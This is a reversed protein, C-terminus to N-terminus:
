GPRSLWRRAMRRLSADTSADRSMAAIPRWALDLSEASVTFAECPGARVVYRVDYHWHAPEDGRAPIQHRDIDYIDREVTLGSLGSEEQAERLAVLPLDIEGDAHGGLQLWRGLKRHHTLLVREGDASVLWASATFHGSEHGREFVRTSSQLFEIFPAIDLPAHWRDRYRHLADILSQAANHMSHKLRSATQKPANARSRDVKYQYPAQAINVRRRLPEFGRM